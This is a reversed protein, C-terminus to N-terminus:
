INVILKGLATIEREVGSMEAAIARYGQDVKQMDTSELLKRKARYRRLLRRLAETRGDMLRMKNLIKGVQTARDKRITAITAM